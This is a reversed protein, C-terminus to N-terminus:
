VPEALFTLPVEILQFSIASILLFVCSVLIRVPFPLYMTITTSWDSIFGTHLNFSSLSFLSLFFGFMVSFFIMLCDNFLCVFLFIWESWGCHFKAILFCDETGELIGRFMLPILPLKTCFPQQLQSPSNSTAHIGPLCPQWCCFLVEWCSASAVLIFHLTMPTPGTMFGVQFSLFFFTLKISM